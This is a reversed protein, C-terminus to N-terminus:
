FLFEPDTSTRTLLPNPVSDPVPDTSFRTLVPNPVPDTSPRTQVPNPVPKSQSPQTIPSARSLLHIIKKNQGVILNSNSLIKKVFFFNFCLRLFYQSMYLNVDLWTKFKLSNLHTELRKLPSSRSSTM